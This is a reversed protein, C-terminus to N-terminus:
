KIKNQLAKMVLDKAVQDKFYPFITFLLFADVEQYKHRKQREVRKLSDVSSHQKFQLKADRRGWACYAADGLTFSTWVKDHNGEKVWGIFQFKPEM